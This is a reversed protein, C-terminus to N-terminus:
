SCFCGDSSFAYEIDNILNDLVLPRSRAKNLGNSVVWFIRILPAFEPDVSHVWMVDMVRRAIMLLRCTAEFTKTLNNPQPAIKAPPHFWTMEDFKPDIHPMPTAKAGIPEAVCFDRGVYLSWCVDQWTLSLLHTFSRLAHICFVRAQTFNTWSAWHRDLRDAEDM